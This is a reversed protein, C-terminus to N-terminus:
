GIQLQVNYMDLDALRMPKILKTHLHKERWEVNYIPTLCITHKYYTVRTYLSTKNRVIADRVSAAWSWINMHAETLVHNM